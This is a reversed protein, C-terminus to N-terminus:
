SHAGLIVEGIGTGLPVYACHPLPAQEPALLTLLLQQVFPDYVMHFHGTLDIPCLDQLVINRAGPGTLAINTYPQIMEDVRSGVTTYRVGPVTDGGANLERMFPSGQAQQVAALSTVQRYTNWLGRLM